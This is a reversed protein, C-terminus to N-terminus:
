GLCVVLGEGVMQDRRKLMARVFDRRRKVSKLRIMRSTAPIDYEPLNVLQGGDEGGYICFRIQSRCGTMGFLVQAFATMAVGTAAFVLIADYAFAKGFSTRDLIRADHGRSDDTMSSLAQQTAGFVLFAAFNLAKALNGHRIGAFFIGGSAAVDVAHIAAEVAFSATVSYADVVREASRLRNSAM